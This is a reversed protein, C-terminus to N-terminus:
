AGDLNGGQQWAAGLGLQAEYLTPELQVAQAFAAAAAKMDGKRAWAIGLANYADASHPDLRTALVLETIAEDLQRKELYAVGKNYHQEAEPAPAQKQGYGTVWLLSLSLVLWVSHYHSNALLM